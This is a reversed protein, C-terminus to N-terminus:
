TISELYLWRREIHIMVLAAGFFVLDAISTRTRRGFTDTMWYPLLLVVYSSIRLLCLLITMYACHAILIQSLSRVNQKSFIRRGESSGEGSFVLSSYALAVLAYGWWSFYQLEERPDMNQSIAVRAIAIATVITCM